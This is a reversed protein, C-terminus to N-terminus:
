VGCLHLPSLCVIISCFLQSLFASYFVSHFALGKLGWVPSYHFLIPLCSQFLISLFPIFLTSLAYSFIYLIKSLIKSTALCFFRSRLLFLACGDDRLFRDPFLVFSLCFRFPPIKQYNEVVKLQVECSKLILTEDGGTSLSCTPSRPMVYCGTVDWPM